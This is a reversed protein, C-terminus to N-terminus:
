MIEFVRYYLVDPWSPCSILHLELFTVSCYKLISYNVIYNFFNEGPQNIEWHRFPIRILFIVIAWSFYLINYKMLSIRRVLVFNKLPPVSRQSSFLEAPFYTLSFQLGNCTTIYLRCMLINRQNKIENYLEYKM